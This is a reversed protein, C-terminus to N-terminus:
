GKRKKKLSIRRGIGERGAATNRPENWPKIHGRKIRDMSVVPQHHRASPYTVYMKNELDKIQRNRTVLISDKIKLLNLQGRISRIHATSRYELSKIVERQYQIIRDKEHVDSQAKSTPKQPAHNERAVADRWSLSMSDSDPDPNPKAFYGLAYYTVYNTPSM